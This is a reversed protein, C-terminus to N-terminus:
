YRKALRVGLNKSYSKTIDDEQDEGEVEPIGGNNSYKSSLGRMYAPLNKSSRRSKNSGKNSGKDMKDVADQLTEM